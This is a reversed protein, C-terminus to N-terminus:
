KSITVDHELKDKISNMIKGLKDIYPGMFNQLENM